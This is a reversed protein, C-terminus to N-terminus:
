AIGKLDFDGAALELTGPSGFVEETINSVVCGATVTISLAGGGQSASVQFDDTNPTGIVHYVTGETIGTPVAADIALFAVTDNLVFGHAAAHITNDGSKGVCVLAKTSGNPVMGLFTGASVATWRGLWRVTTSTPIDLTEADSNSAIRSAAADWGMLKRAYSGGTVENAGTTSFATHASLYETALTRADLGAEINADTFSGM